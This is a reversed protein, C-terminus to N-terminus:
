RHGIPMHSFEAEGIAALIATVLAEVPGAGDIQVDARAALQPVERESAHMRPDTQGELRSTVLQEPASVYVLYFRPMSNQLEHLVELHRIGDIILLDARGREPGLVESSLGRPDETAWRQGLDMLTERDAADLGLDAARRRVADGFSAVSGGLRKALGVALTSKGSRAHGALGIVLKARGETGVGTM